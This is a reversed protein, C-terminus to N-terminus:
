RTLSGIAYAIRGAGRGDVLDQGAVAMRARVTTDRVIESVNRALAGWDLDDVHGASLISGAKALAELQFCQDQVTEVAVAPCGTCALEYLSGGGASVALDHEQMLMALNTPAMVADVRRELGSAEALLQEPDRYFPGVVLSVVFNGPVRDLMRLVPRSVEKPDSGGFTVLVRRVERAPARRPVAWFAPHLALYDPGLLFRTNPARDAYPLSPAYANGNIVLDCDPARGGLDDMVALLYGSDRLGGLFDPEASPLDLLVHRAGEHRLVLLLFDLKEAVEGGAPAPTYRFGHAKVLEIASPEWRMVFHVAGDMRQQYAM